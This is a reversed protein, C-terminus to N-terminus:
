EVARETNRRNNYNNNNNNNNNRRRQGRNNNNNNNNNSRSNDLFEQHQRFGFSETLASQLFQELMVAFHGDFTLSWKEKTEASTGARRVNGGLLYGTASKSFTLDFARNEMHHSEIRGLVVGVFAALDMHRLRISVRRERDFQPSQDNPDTKRAGLQPFQSVLLQKGDVAVRTMSGEAPQDRVDHMEFRPLAWTAVFRQRRDNPAGASSSSSPSSQQRFAYLMSSAAGSMAASSQRMVNPLYSRLM